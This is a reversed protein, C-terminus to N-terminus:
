TDGVPAAPAARRQEWAALAAFTLTGSALMWLFAGPLGLGWDLVGLVAIQVVISAFAALGARSGALGAIIPVALAAGIAGADMVLARLSEGSLALGAALAAAAVTATRAARLLARDSAAPRLRRYGSETIVASVALLASDVSSLIASVLAGTFVILLWGPFLAKALSPLFAEGEGLPLGLQPAFLGFAVPVLGAALYVGAGLLAGSRAAEPTRAALTRSIAEQSVMTGIIPILWLEARDAWTESAPPPRLATDPLAAWMAAPGGAAALMLAFLIAIAVLIVIGQLIDTVVDGALGGFLTYTMVLATAGLLAPVFGIGSATDIIAAFAFLQAASWTTASLAIVAASLSETRGGFRDRLFDALTIFGGERLRRAFFLAVAVLGLAYAFPEARAGVIGEAAVESSTAILSEAAFWTAFISMGVAGASLSRGAVLYDTDSRAGRGVWVALAIQVAVYALILLLTIAFIGSCGPLASGNTLEGARSRM